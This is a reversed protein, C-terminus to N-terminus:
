VKRKFDCLSLYLNKTDRFLSQSQGEGASVLILIFINAVEYDIFLRSWFIGYDKFKLVKLVESQLTLNGSVM